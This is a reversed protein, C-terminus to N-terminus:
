RVIPRPSVVLVGTMGQHIACAYAYTGSNPFQVSYSSTFPLGEGILSDLFSQALLLGSTRAGGTYPAGSPASPRSFPTFRNVQHGPCTNWIDPPFSGPPPLLPGADSTCLPQYPAQNPLGAALSGAFGSVTHPVVAPSRNTWTVTDGAIIFLQAPGFANISLRADPQGGGAMVTWTVSGDPNSAEGPTILGHELQTLRLLDAQYQRAADAQVVADGQVPQDAPLVDLRGSMAPGDVDSLLYIPGPSLSPALSITFSTNGQGGSPPPSVLVGSNVGFEISNVDGPNFLCPSQGTRGCPPDPQNDFFPTQFTGPTAPDPQVFGAVFGSYDELPTLRPALLHVTHFANPNAALTFVLTDGAHVQLHDPYFANFTWNHGEPSVNDVGIQWSHSPAPAQAVARQRSSLASVAPLVALLVGVLLLAHGKPKNM